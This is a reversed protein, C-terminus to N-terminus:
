EERPWEWIPLDYWVAWWPGYPVRDTTLRLLLLVAALLVVSVAPSLAVGRALGLALLTGGIVVWAALAIAPPLFIGRARLWRGAVWAAALLVLSLIGAAVSM